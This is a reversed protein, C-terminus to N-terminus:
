LSKRFHLPMFYKVILEPDSLSSTPPVGKPMWSENLQSRDVAYGSRLLRQRVRLGTDADTNNVQAHLNAVGESSLIGEVARRVTQGVGQNRALPLVAQSFYNSREGESHMQESIWAYGVVESGRRAIWARTCPLHTDIGGGTGYERINTALIDRLSKSIEFPLKQEDLEINM